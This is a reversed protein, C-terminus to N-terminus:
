KRGGYKKCSIRFHNLCAIPVTRYFIDLAQDADIAEIKHEGVIANKCILDRRDLDYDAVLKTVTVLFTPAKMRNFARCVRDAFAAAKDFSWNMNPDILAIDKNNEDVLRVEADASGHPIHARYSLKRM